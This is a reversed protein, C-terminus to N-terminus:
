VLDNGRNQLEELFEGWVKMADVKEDDYGYRNYVAAVGSITGSVHNLIKEVVYPQIRARAMGSAATRRLDHYRWGTTGSEAQVRRLWKSFGSVPSHKTTTFVFDCDLFRPVEDLMKLVYNSLPVVHQKGNKSREAPIVWIKQDLELESWRMNALETRRQATGLLVPIIQRIPYVENRCARLVRYIEDDALVRDRSVEKNQAKLGGIPTVEVIGRELCWNFLKRIISLIRNAQYVAGRESAGDMIDLIDARKIHRIDRQGHVSVFERKLVREAERWNRNRPKAYQRIFDACIAEVLMDPHRRRSAPDIGENLQRLADMAKERAQALTIIPYNGLKLRRQKRGYNYKVSFTKRGKESVRVGLGPCLMDFVEYRKAQPKLASVTKDSLSKRM